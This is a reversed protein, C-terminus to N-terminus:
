DSFQFADRHMQMPMSQRVTDLKTLDLDAIVISPAPVPNKDCSEGAMTSGVSGAGDCGGADALLEGWPDYVIHLLYFLLICLTL